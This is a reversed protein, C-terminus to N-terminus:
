TTQCQHRACSAGEDGSKQGDDESPRTPTLRGGQGFRECGIFVSHEAAVEVGPESRAFRCHVDQARRERIVRGNGGCRPSPREANVGAEITEENAATWLDFADRPQGIAEPGIM